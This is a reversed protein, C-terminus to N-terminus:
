PWWCDAIRDAEITAALTDCLKAKAVSAARAADHLNRDTRETTSIGFRELLPIVVPHEAILTQVSVGCTM